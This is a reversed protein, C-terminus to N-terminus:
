QAATLLPKGKIKVATSPITSHQATNMEAEALTTDPIVSRNGGRREALSM